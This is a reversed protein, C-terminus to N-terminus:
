GRPTRAAQLTFPLDRSEYGYAVFARALCLLSSVLGAATAMTPGSPSSARVSIICCQRIPQSLGLAYAAGALVLILVLPLHGALLVPESVVELHQPALLGIGLFGRVQRPVGRGLLQRLPDLM